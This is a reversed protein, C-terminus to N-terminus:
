GIDVEVEELGRETRGEIHLADTPILGAEIDVSDAVLNQEAVIL